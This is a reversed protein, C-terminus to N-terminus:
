RYLSKVSCMIWTTNSHRTAPARSPSVWSASGELRLEGCSQAPEAAGGRGPPSYRWWGAPAHDGTLLGRSLSALEPESLALNWVEVEDLMGRFGSARAAGSEVGVRRLGGIEIRREARAVRGDEWASSACDLLTDGLMQGDVFLRLRGAAMTAAVFHWRKTTLALRESTLTASARPAEPSEEVRFTPHAAADLGLLYRLRKGGHEFELGALRQEFGTSEPWAWLAITFERHHTVVDNTESWALDGEAAFRLAREGARAALPLTTLFLLFATCRLLPRVM